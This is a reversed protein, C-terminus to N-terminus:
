GRRRRSLRRPKKRIQMSTASRAKLLRSTIAPAVVFGIVMCGGFDYVKTKVLAATAPQSLSRGSVLTCEVPPHLVSYVACVVAIGLGWLNM